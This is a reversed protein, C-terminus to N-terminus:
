PIITRPTPARYFPRTKTPAAMKMRLHIATRLRSRVRMRRLRPRNPSVNSDNHMRRAIRRCSKQRCLETVLLAPHGVRSRFASHIKLRFFLHTPLPPSRNPPFHFTLFLFRNIQLFFILQFSSSLRTFAEDFVSIYLDCFIRKRIHLQYACM